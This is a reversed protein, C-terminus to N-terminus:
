RELREDKNSNNVTMSLHGLSTKQDLLVVHKGQESDTYAPRNM